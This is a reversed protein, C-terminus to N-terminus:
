FKWYIGTYRDILLQIEYLLLHSRPQIALCYSFCQKSFSHRFSMYSSLVYAALHDRHLRSANKEQAPM